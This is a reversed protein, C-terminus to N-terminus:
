HKPQSSWPKRDFYSNTERSIVNSLLWLALLNPITVISLFVDGFNWIVNLSVTAGIFHFLLFVIKYPIIARKGFVYSVCRDGYYSWSIATSIGFLAVCLMVIYAGIQGLSREFAISTLPAGTEVADGFLTSYEQGDSAFAKDKDFDITGDFALTQAKDVFLRDVAVEHWAMRSDGQYQPDGNVVTLQELAAAGDHQNGEADVSVFSLDGSDILLESAHKESWVGTTVIVLGTITCIILTDIFPELLAVVGESVPEDTQAAAHAIPASGQGAENSFLGRKIGWQLTLLFAGTGTGAVGATPNFAEKIILAFSPFIEGFNMGLIIVAGLIYLLAMLPALVSTVRGIRKIGGFIIFGVFTATVTGTIATSVGFNSHFLDSVTNAQIANGTLFSTMMLGLAFFIALPKWRTGLGREIYYMPGGSVSGELAKAEEKSSEVKRFKLSLTVESYKVAMGLFATVWMWFLAGPGGWHIATAVGAINGIGVTASLATTLAQFHTVDGPENPDDYKGTTVAIGHFLHRLQVFGLRLTLFLGTGLLVVILLWTPIIYTSVFNSIAGVIQEVYEM